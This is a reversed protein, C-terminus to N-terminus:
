ATKQEYTMEMFCTTHDFISIVKIALSPQLAKFVDCTILMKKNVKLNKISNLISISYESGELMGQSSTYEVLLGTVINAKLVASTEPLISDIIEVARSPMCVSWLPFREMLSFLVSTVYTLQYKECYLSWALLYDSQSRPKEYVKPLRICIFNQLHKTSYECLIEPPMEELTILSKSWMKFIMKRIYNKNEFNANPYISLLRLTHKHIKQKLKLPLSENTNHLHIFRDAQEIATFHFFNGIRSFM